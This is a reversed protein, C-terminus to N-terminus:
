VVASCTRHRERLWDTYFLANRLACQVGPRQQHQLIPCQVISSFFTRRVCPAFLDNLDIVNGHYQRLFNTKELGKSYLVSFRSCIQVVTRVMDKYSVNGDDWRLRHYHRQLWENTRQTKLCLRERDYPPAFLIVVSCNTNIDVAAFEKVLYENREGRFAQLEVVAGDCEMNDFSFREVSFM